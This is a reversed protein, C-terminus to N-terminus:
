LSKPKFLESHKVYRISAFFFLFIFFNTYLSSSHMLITLTKSRETFSILCMLRSSKWNGDTMTDKKEFNGSASYVKLDKKKENKERKPEKTTKGTSSSSKNKNKHFRFDGFQYVFTSTSRMLQTETKICLNGKQAVRWCFLACEGCM